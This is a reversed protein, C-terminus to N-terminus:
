LQQHGGITTMENIFHLIHRPKRNIINEWAGCDHYLWWLDVLKEWLNYLCTFQSVYSVFIKDIMEFGAKVVEWKLFFITDYIGKVAINVSLLM